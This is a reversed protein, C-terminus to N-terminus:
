MVTIGCRPCTGKKVKHGALKHCVTGPKFKFKGKAESPASKIKAKAAAVKDQADWWKDLLGM